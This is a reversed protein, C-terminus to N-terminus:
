DRHPFWQSSLRIRSFRVYPESPPSAKGERGRDPALNNKQLLDSQRGIANPHLDFAPERQPASPCVPSLHLTFPLLFTLTLTLALPLSGRLRPPASPFAPKGNEATLHLNLPLPPQERSPALVRLLAFPSQVDFAKRGRRRPPSAPKRKRCAPSSRQNESLPTIPQQNEHSAARGASKMPAGQSEICRQPKPPRPRKTEFSHASM